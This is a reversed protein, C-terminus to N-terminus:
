VVFCTVAPSHTRSICMQVFLAKPLGMDSGVPCTRVVDSPDAWIQPGASPLAVSFDIFTRVFKHMLVSCKSQNLVGNSQNPSAENLVVMNRRPVPKYVLPVIGSRSSFRLLESFNLSGIPVNNFEGM